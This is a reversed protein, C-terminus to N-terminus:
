GLSLQEGPPQPMLTNHLRDVNRQWYDGDSMAWLDPLESPEAMVRDLSQLALARLGTLDPLPEAPGCYPDAPEGGSCQAAVLAAAAVAEEAVNADLLGTTDATRVLADRIIGERADPSAKDLADCWDGATDNDFPGVDWTGM